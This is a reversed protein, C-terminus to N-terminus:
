FELFAEGLFLRGLESFCAETAIDAFNDATISTKATQPFCKPTFAYILNQARMRVEFAKKSTLKCWRGGIVLHIPSGSSSGSVRFPTSSFYESAKCGASIEAAEQSHIINTMFCYSIECDDRAPIDSPVLLDSLTLNLM